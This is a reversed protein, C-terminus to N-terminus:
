VFNRVAKNLGKWYFLSGIKCKTVIFGSHGGLPSDHFLHIIYQQLSSDNEVVLKGKRYLLNQTWQYKPHPHGATLNQVIWRCGSKGQKYIIEYDFGMLKSLWKSQFPTTIKQEMIYRLSFHDTRIIFYRGLLYPSWKKVAMVVAMLEREYTTLSQRKLSLAKSFYAVPHGAQMLVAGIGVGLADTEVVFGLLALVPASLM